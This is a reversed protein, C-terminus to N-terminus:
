NKPVHQNKLVVKLRRQLLAGFKGCQSNTLEGFYGENFADIGLERAIECRLREKLQGEDLPEFEAPLQHHSAAERGKRGGASDKRREM